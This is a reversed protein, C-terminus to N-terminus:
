GGGRGLDQVLLSALAAVIPDLRAHRLSALHVSLAAMQEDNYAIKRALDAQCARSEALQLVLAMVRDARRRQRAATLVMRTVGGGLEERHQRGLSRLRIVLHRVICGAGRQTRPM